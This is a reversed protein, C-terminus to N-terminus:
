VLTPWYSPLPAVWSGQHTSIKWAHLLLTHAPTSNLLYLAKKSLDYKEDGVIPHGIASLHIRLQHKRGTLPTLEVDSWNERPNYYLGKYKTISPKKTSASEIAVLQNMVLRPIKRPANQVNPQVNNPYVRRPSSPKPSSVIPMNIEGELVKGFVIARYRKKIKQDRFMRSLTVASKLTKAVILLGSTARDIRHVLRYENSKSQLWDDINMHVRTGGQVDLGSPKNIVILDATEDLILDDFNYNVVKPPEDASMNVWKQHLHIEVSIKDGFNLASGATTKLDNVRVFHSRIARELAGQTCGAYQRRLWRDLRSPFDANYIVDHFLM